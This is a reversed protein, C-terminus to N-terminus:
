FTLYHANLVLNRSEGERGLLEFNFKFALINVLAWPNQM